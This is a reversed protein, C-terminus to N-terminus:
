YTSQLLFMGYFCSFLTSSILDTTITYLRGEFKKSLIDQIDVAVKYSNYVSQTTKTPV